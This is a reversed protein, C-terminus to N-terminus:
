PKELLEWLQQPNLGCWKAIPVILKIEFGFGNIIRSITAPSTGIEKAVKRGQVRRETMTFFLFEGLTDIRITKDM